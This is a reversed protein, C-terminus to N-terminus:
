MWMDMSGCVFAFGLLLVQLKGVSIMIMRRVYLWVIVRTFQYSRKGYGKQEVITLM